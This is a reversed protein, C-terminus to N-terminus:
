RMPSGGRFFYGGCRRRKVPILTARVRPRLRSELGHPALLIRHSLCQDESRRQREGARKSSGLAVALLALAHHTSSHHTAPHHSARHHHAGPLLAPHQAVEVQAVLLALLHQRDLFLVALLVPARHAFHLGLLVLQAAQVAGLFDVGVLDGLLLLLHVLQAPLQELRPHFGVVLHGRDESGLLALQQALVRRRPHHFAMRSSPTIFLSVCARMSCSVASSRPAYGRRVLQWLASRQQASSPTGRWESHSSRRQGSCWLM